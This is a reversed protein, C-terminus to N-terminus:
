HGEQKDKRDDSGKTKSTFTIIATALAVLAAVLKIVEILVEM